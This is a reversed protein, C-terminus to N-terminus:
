RKSGQHHVLMDAKSMILQALAALRHYLADDAAPDARITTVDTAQVVEECAAVAEIFRARAGNMREVAIPVADSAGRSGSTTLPQVPQCAVVARSRQRAPLHMVAPGGHKTIYRRTADEVKAPSDGIVNDTLKRMKSRQGSVFPQSVGCYWAIQRDSWERWEPDNLLKMVARRKDEPTRGLGNRINASSSLLLARRRDGPHVFCGVEKLGARKAAELRHHGDVLLFEGDTAVVHLRPFLNKDVQLFEFYEQVADQNLKDRPLVEPDCNVQEIPITALKDYSEGLRKPYLNRDVTADTHQPNSMM